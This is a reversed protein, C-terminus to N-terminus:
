EGQVQEGGDLSDLHSVTTDVFSPDTGSSKCMKGMNDGKGPM